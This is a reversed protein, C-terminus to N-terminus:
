SQKEASMTVRKGKLDDGVSGRRARVRDKSIDMGMLWTAETPLREELQGVM